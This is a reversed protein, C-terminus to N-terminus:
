PVLASAAILSAKIILEAPIVDYTKGASELTRCESPGCVDCCPSHGLRAGIWDELPRNNIFIGNSRLPAKKFESPSLREKKLGVKIRLLSLARGLAYVAKEIERETSACRPCTKNNSILRKWTIKLLRTKARKRAGTKSKGTPGCCRQGKEEAIKVVAKGAKKGNKRM